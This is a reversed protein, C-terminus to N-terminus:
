LRGGRSLMRREWWPGAIIMLLGTVLGYWLVLHPVDVAALVFMLVVALVAGILGRGLRQAPTGLPRARVKRGLLSNGWRTTSLVVLMLAIPTILGSWSGLFGDALDSVLGYAILFIGGGIWWWRSSQAGALAQQRREEVDVLARQAEEPTPTTM